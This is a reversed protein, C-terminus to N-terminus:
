DEEEDYDEGEDEHLPEDWGSFFLDSSGCNSCELDFPSLTEDCKNCKCFGVGM